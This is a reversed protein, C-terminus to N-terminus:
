PEELMLPVKLQWNEIQQYLTAPRQGVGSISKHYAFYDVIQWLPIVVVEDHALRHLDHLAQRAENWGTATEIQRLVVAMYTSAPGLIGDPGFLQRAEILPEAVALEVYLLDDDEGMVTPQGLPIERLEVTIGIAALNRQIGRCGVKVVDDAAHALILKPVEKPADKPGGPALEAARALDRVAVSSLTMALRPEYSRALVEDDYAYGAPDSLGAGKAFPGSVVECGALPRRRLVQEALIRQRDIAYELARRFGRHKMLPKSLNPVLCHVTPVAYPEVAFNLSGQMRTVEWPPLRDIVTIEGLTLSEIAEARSAFKQEVVAQPQTSRRAFYQAEATFTTREKGADGAAYPTIAALTGEGAQDTASLPVTLLATPALQPQRFHVLLTNVGQVEVSQCAESWGPVAGLAGPRALLLLRRALDYGTLADGTTWPIDGKLKISLGRALDVLEYQGFPCVYEGGDAGYGTFEFLQRALLRRTRRVSWETIPQSLAPAYPSTIAVVAQPQAAFAEEALEKAGDAKPWIAVARRALALARAPDGAALKDRGEAVVGKARENMQGEFQTATKGSPFRSRLERVLRRVSPYDNAANYKELLKGTATATAQELNRYKPQRDYLTHLLVLANEYNRKRQWDGAEDYLFDGIADDVGPTKPYEQRLYEFYDFADNFKKAKVLERAKELVLQEFLKVELIDEWRVEFEDDPDEFKRLRLKDNPKPNAPVKSDPFNLPITKIQTKAADDLIVVDYPEQEYFRAPPTAEQSKAPRACIATLLLAACVALQALRAWARRRLEAAPQPARNM